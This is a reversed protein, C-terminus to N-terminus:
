LLKKKQQPSFPWINSIFYIPVEFANGYFDQPFDIKLEGFSNPSNQNRSEEEEEEYSWMIM